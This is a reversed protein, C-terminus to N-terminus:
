LHRGHGRWPGLQSCAPSGHKPENELADRHGNKCQERRLLRRIKRNGRGTHVVDLGDHVVLWALRGRAM